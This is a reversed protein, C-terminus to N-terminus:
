GYWSVVCVKGSFGGGCYFYGNGDYILGFVYVGEFMDICELVEGIELDIYWLDVDDGEWIGYWFEDNIWIVGIVFCDFELICLVVGIEM